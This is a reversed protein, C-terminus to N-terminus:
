KKKDMDIRRNLVTKLGKDDLRKAIIKKNADLVYLTPTSYVDYYYKATALEQQDKACVDKWTHKHEKIYKKWTPYDLESYIAYVEVNVGAAKLSDTYTKLAPIETKCHSCTPDWFVLITYTAQVKGLEVM